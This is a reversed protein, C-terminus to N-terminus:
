GGCAIRSCHAAWFKCENCRLTSRLSCWSCRALRLDEARFDDVRFDDVRCEDVRSDDERLDETGEFPHGYPPGSMTIM